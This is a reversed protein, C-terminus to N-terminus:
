LSDLAAGGFGAFAVVSFTAFAAPLAAEQAPLVQMCVFFVVPVLVAVRLGRRLLIHSPDNVRATLRRFM